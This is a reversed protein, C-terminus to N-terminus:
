SNFAALMAWPPMVDIGTRPAIRSRWGGNDRGSLSGRFEEKAPNSQQLLEVSAM